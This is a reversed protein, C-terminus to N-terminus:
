DQKEAKLEQLGVERQRNGLCYITKFEEFDSSPSPLSPLSPEVYLVELVIKLKLIITIYRLDVTMEIINNIEVNNM